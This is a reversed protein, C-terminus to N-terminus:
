GRASGHRLSSTFLAGIATRTASAARDPQAPDRGVVVTADAPLAVSDVTVVLAGSVAVVDPSGEDVVVAGAGGALVAVVASEDVVVVARGVAVVVRGETVVVVVIRGTARVRM